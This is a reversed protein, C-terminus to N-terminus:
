FNPFYTKEVKKGLNMLVVSIHHLSCKMKMVTKNMVPMEVWATLTVMVDGVPTSVTVMPVNSGIRRVDAFNIQILELNQCIKSM